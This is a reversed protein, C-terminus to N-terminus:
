SAIADIDGIATAPVFVAVERFQKMMHRLFPQTRWDQARSSVTATLVSKLDGWVDDVWVKDTTIVRSMKWAQSQATQFMGAFVRLLSDELTEDIDQDSGSLPTLWELNDTYSNGIKWDVVIMPAGESEAWTKVLGTIQLRIDATALDAPVDPDKFYTPAWTIAALENVGGNQTPLRIPAAFRCYGLPVPLASKELPWAMVSEDLGAVNQELESCMGAPVQLTM